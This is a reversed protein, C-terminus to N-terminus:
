IEIVKGIGEPAIYFDTIGWALGIGFGCVLMHSREIIQEKNECIALPISAGATNGYKTLSYLIQNRKFGCKAAVHDLMFKQAQHLVIYDVNDQNLKKKEIYKNLSEVVDNIAFEFVATGDMKVPTNDDPWTIVDYRTGDSHYDIYLSSTNDKKLVTAAAADGFLLVDNENQRKQRSLYEANIVLAYKDEDAVGELVAAATCLGAVFGSCGLNIDYVICDWSLGLEKQVYFATSPTNFEPAQTLYLLVYINDKNIGTLEIASKAAAVALDVLRIDRGVLSRREEIGTSRILKKIQKENNENIYDINKFKKKSTAAAIGVIKSHYAVNMIVGRDESWKSDNLYVFSVTLKGSAYQKTTRDM